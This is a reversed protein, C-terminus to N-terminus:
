HRLAHAQWDSLRADVIAWFAHANLRADDLLTAVSIATTQGLIRYEEIVDRQHTSTRLTQLCRTGLLVHGREQRLVKEHLAHLVAGAPHAHAGLVELLAEGLHEVVGQLGLMTDALNGTDLDLGLRQYLPQMVNVASHREGILTLATAAMTAHSREQAAQAALARSMWPLPAMQSQQLATQAALQEGSRLVQLLRALRLANSM